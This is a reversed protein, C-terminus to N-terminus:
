LVSIILLTTLLLVLTLSTLGKARTENGNGSAIGVLVGGGICIMLAISLLLNILPMSLNVAALGQAGVGKSLFLGDVMIQLSVILMGLISPLAFKFFLKKVCGNELTINQSM